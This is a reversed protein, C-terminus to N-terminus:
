FSDSSHGSCQGAANVEGDRSGIVHCVDNEAVNCLWCGKGGMIEEVKRKVAEPFNATTETLTQSGALSHVPSGPLAM